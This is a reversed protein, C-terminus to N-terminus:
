PTQTKLANPELQFFVVNANELLHGTRELITDKLRDILETLIDLRTTTSPDRTVLGHDGVTVQHQSPGIAGSLTVVWHYEVAAM